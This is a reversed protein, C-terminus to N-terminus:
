LTQGYVASFWGSITTADADESETDLIAALANDNMRRDFSGELTPTQYEISDGRTAAEATAETFKGKYIWWLEKSGNDKTRAFGIAVYPAKTDGTLVEVGKADATRGLVDRRPGNAVQDLNISVDYGDLRHENRVRVNSAYLSGEIYRPTIQVSISKGLIAPTGYTPATTATDEATMKAYYVDLVGEYYGVAPDWTPTTTTTENDPM